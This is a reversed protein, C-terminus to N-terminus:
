LSRPMGVLTALPRVQLWDVSRWRRIALPRLLAAGALEVAAVIAIAAFSPESRALLAVQLAAMPVFGWLYTAVNPVAAMAVYTAYIAANVTMALVLLARAPGAGVLPSASIAAVVVLFLAGLGLNRWLAKEIENRVADRSGPIRLWLLRSQRVISGSREGSFLMFALPWFVTLSYFRPFLVALAIASVLLNLPNGSVLLHFPNIRLGTTRLGGTKPATRLPNSALLTRIAVARPVPRTADVAVARQQPMLMVPRVQPARLYWGAFIAWAGLAAAPWVWAPSAAFFGATAPSWEPLLVLAALALPLSISWRWDGFALFLVLFVAVIFAAVVGLAFFPFPSAAALFVREAAITPAVLFGASLMLLTCLLLSVAILMRLRFHPLLQYMRPAALTRFLAPTTFLAPFAALVVFALYGFVLWIPERRVLAVVVLLGFLACGVVFLVVQLSVATFFTWWLRLVARM